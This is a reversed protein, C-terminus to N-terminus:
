PFKVDAREDALATVRQDQILKQQMDKASMALSDIFMLELLRKKIDDGFLRCEENGPFAAPM